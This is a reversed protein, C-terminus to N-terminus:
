GITDVDEKIKFFKVNFFANLVVNGVSSQGTIKVLSKPPIFSRSFKFKESSQYIDQKIRLWWNGQDFEKLWGKFKPVMKSTLLNSNNPSGRMCGAAYIRNNKIWLNNPVLKM